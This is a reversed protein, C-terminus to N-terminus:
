VEQDFDLLLPGGINFWIMFDQNINLNNRRLENYNKIIEPVFINKRGVIPTKTKKNDAIECDIEAYLKSNRNSEKVSVRFRRPVGKEEKKESSCLCILRVPSESSYRNMSWKKGEFVYGYVSLIFNLSRNIIDNDGIKSNAMRCIEAMEAWQENELAPYQETELLLNGTYFMWKAKFYMLLCRYSMDSWDSYESDLINIIEESATKLEKKIDCFVNKYPEFEEAANENLFFIRSSLKRTYNDKYEIDFLEPKEDKYKLLLKVLIKKVRFYAYSDNKSGSFYERLDSVSRENVKEYIKSINTIVNVYDEGDDNPNSENYFLLDIYELTDPIMYDGCKQILIVYNLWIDLLLTLSFSNKSSELGNKVALEFYEEFEYSLESIKEENDASDFTKMQQLLNRCIEGYLRSLTSKVPCREAAIKMREIADYLIDIANEAKYTEIYDRTFHGSILVAEDNGSAYMNLCEVIQDWFPSYERYQGRLVSQENVKGYSNTGFSRVFAAVAQAEEYNDWRCIEILCKIVEIEKEKRDVGYNYDLYAIAESPHRFSVMINGTSSNSCYEVMSDSRLIKNLKNYDGNYQKGESITRILVSLPLKISRNFQSAVALILNMQRIANILPLSRKQREPNDLALFRSQEASGIGLAFVAKRVDNFSSANKDKFIKFLDNSVIESAKAEKYLGSNLVNKVKEWEPSYQFKAYNILTEFLYDSSTNVSGSQSRWNKNIKDMISDFKNKAQSELTTHLPQLENFGIGQVVSSDTNVSEFFYISGILIANCENLKNYLEIYDSKKKSSSYNDWIVIINKIRDGKVTRQGYINDKIFKVLTDQWDSERNKPDGSIFLVIYKNNKVKPLGESAAHWAFWCLSTTKGSNSNGKLLIINRMQNKSNLQETVANELLGEVHRPVHFSINEKNYRVNFYKWSKQDRQQIFDAFARDKNKDDLVYPVLIEDRMLTVGIRNLASCEKRPIWITDNNPLSVKVQNEYDEEVGEDALEAEMDALGQEIVADKLSMECLVIQGNNIYEEVLTWDDENKCIREAKKKDTGFIYVLGNPVKDFNSLLMSIDFWDDETLGDIVLYGWVFLIQDFIMDILETKRKLKLLKSKNNPISNEDGFLSIFRPQQKNFYKYFELSDTLEEQTQINLGFNNGISNKFWLNNLSSSLIINWGLSLIARLWPQFSAQEAASLMAKGLTDPVREWLSSLDPTENKIDLQKLVSTYYPDQKFYEQGLLLAAKGDKINYFLNNIEKLSLSM